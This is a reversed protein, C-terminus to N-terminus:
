GKAIVALSKIPGSGLNRSAKPGLKSSLLRHHPLGIETILELTIRHGLNRLPTIAYRLNGLPEADALM